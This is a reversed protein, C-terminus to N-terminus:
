ILIFVTGFDQISLFTIFKFKPSGRQLLFRHIQTLLLRRTSPLRLNLSPLLTHTSAPCGSLSCRDMELDELCRRRQKSLEEHIFGVERM